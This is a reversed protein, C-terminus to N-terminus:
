AVDCNVPMLEIAKLYIIHPEALQTSGHIELQLLHIELALREYSENSRNFVRHNRM